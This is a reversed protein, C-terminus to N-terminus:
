ARHVKAPVIGKIRAGGKAGTSAVVAEEVTPDARHGQGSGRGRSGKRQSRKRKISKESRLSNKLKKMM